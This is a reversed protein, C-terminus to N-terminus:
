ICSDGGGASTVAYACVWRVGYENLDARRVLDHRTILRQGENLLKDPAADMEVNVVPMCRKKEEDTFCAVAKEPTQAELWQPIAPVSPICSKRGLYVPWKPHLMAQYCSELVEEDGWIFVTFRADQLYQKPTIITNGGTRPKGEANLFYGEPGQVTHFDTMIRGPCDARVAISLRDNLHNLREDGRRLGLCCGLLGVLASKTPMATTTRQDWRADEGWSQLPASLTFKILKM